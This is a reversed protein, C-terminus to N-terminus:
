NEKESLVAENKDLDKYWDSPILKVGNRWEEQVCSKFRKDDLMAHDTIIVQMQGNMEDVRKFIFDFLKKIGIWDPDQNGNVQSPYYVQSPQDLMLFHPVPRNNEVFYKHLAMLILIHYSVWNAGSGLQSLPVVENDIISMLTLKSLNFSVSASNHEVDLQNDQVWSTMWINIMALIADLRQQKSDEDLLESLRDIESKLQNIRIDLSKDEELNVNQLFFEIQGLVKGKEINLDRTARLSQEQQYIERIACEVNFLNNRAETRQDELKSIVENVKPAESRLGDLNEKLKKLSLNLMGVSPISDVLEKHCFPCQEFNVNDTVKFLNVARMRETQVQLAEEYDYNTLKYSNASDIRDDLEAIKSKLERRTNQLRKLEAQAGTPQGQVVVDPTWGKLSELLSLAEKDTEAYDDQSLLDLEKAKSVLQYIQSRGNNLIQKMEDKQRTFARLDRKNNILALEISYMDEQIAGLFYPITLKYSNARFPENQKYFLFENQAITTQPQFCCFKTHSINVELPESNGKENKLKCDAIGLKRSLFSKLDSVNENEIITDFPPIGDDRKVEFYVKDTNRVNFFHPNPRAIFIFENNGIALTLGFWKVTQRVIGYSIDCERAGLCYDVIKILITKGTMSEGSIINVKGLQFDLKRINDADKYLVINKIQM